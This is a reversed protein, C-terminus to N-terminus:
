KQSALGYTPTVPTAPYEPRTRLVNELAYMAALVNEENWPRGVIQVGAPLGASGRETELAAREVRDRSPSRVTEEAARVRTCPLTGCPYGLVNYLPAYAGATFVKGSAGHRLAPLGTPPAVILDLPGGEADNMAAEFRARYREIEAVLGWYHHTDFFGYNRGINAVSREGALRLLAVIPVIVARPKTAIQLMEAVRPDRPGKGLDELAGRAGDAALVGFFLDMAHDVDPATFPVVTAGLEELLQAAERTARELAPSARFSGAREYVGVRLGVVGRGAANGAARGAAVRLGLDLDSVHRALPGVQSVIATQGAFFKFATREPLVGATAKFSAIGNYAAPVRLSGGIDTGLGLPSGGAAVIAGEGGSSGGCTRAIDWPNNTRGYVPNDAEIFIMLQSVNTKAIVVAGAARWKAVYPDDHGARAHSRTTLGFTTPTGAVDLSEKITVPLGHMPGLPESRARREDAARAEMLAEEFRRVVVANLMGDVAEIRAILAKTAEVSSVDGRALSAALGTASSTWLESM